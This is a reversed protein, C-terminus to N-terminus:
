DTNTKKMGLFKRLLNKRLYRMYHRLGAGYLPDRKVLYMLLGASGIYPIGCLLLQVWPIRDGMFWKVFISKFVFNLFSFIVTPLIYRWEMGDAIAGILSGGIIVSDITIGAISWFLLIISLNFVKKNYADKFSILIKQQQEETFHEDHDIFKQFSKQLSAYMM